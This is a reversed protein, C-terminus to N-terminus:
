AHSILAGVAVCVIAIGTWGFAAAPELRIEPRLMDARPARARAEGGAHAAIRMLRTAGTTGSRFCRSVSGGVFRAFRSPPELLVVGGLAIVLGIRDRM